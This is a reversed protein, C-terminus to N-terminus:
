FQTSSRLRPSETGSRAAWPGSRGYSSVSVYLLRPNRAHLDAYDLGLRAAGGPRASEIAVDARGIMRLAAERGRPNKLDLAIGHKGRNVALSMASHDGRRAGLGRAWDGRPPEIKIVDAGHAALLYGCGPGAVGQSMDVVRVGAFPREYGPEPM